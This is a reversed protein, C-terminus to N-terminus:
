KWMQRKGQEVVMVSSDRVVSDDRCALEPAGQQPFWM